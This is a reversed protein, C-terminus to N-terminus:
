GLNKIGVIHQGAGSIGCAIYVKPRVTKGTQGIMRSESLLGADIIPQTAGLMAGLCKALKEVPGMNKVGRGVGIIVDSEEIKGMISIVTWLLLIVGVGAILGGKAQDLLNHSFSIIQTTINEQWNAKAAMELIQKKLSITYGKLFHRALLPIDEKREGKLLALIRSCLEKHAGSLISLGIIDVDEQLATSVIM